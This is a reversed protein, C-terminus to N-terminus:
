TVRQTKFFLPLKMKKQRGLSMITLKLGKHKILDIISLETLSKGSGSEGVIGLIEKHNVKFSRDPILYNKKSSIKLNKVELITKKSM